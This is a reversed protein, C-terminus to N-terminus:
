LIRKEVRGISQGVRFAVREYLDAFDDTDPPEGARLADLVKDLANSAEEPSGSFAQHAFFAEEETSVRFTDSTDWGAIVILTEFIQKYDNHSFDLGIWVTSVYCCNSNECLNTFGIRKYTEDSILEFWKDKSIPKGKRNYYNM